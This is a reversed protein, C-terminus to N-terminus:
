EMYGLRAQETTHAELSILYHKAVTNHLAMGIKKRWEARFEAQARKSDKHVQESVLRLFTTFTRGTAGMSEFAMPVFVINHHQQLYNGYKTGPIAVPNVKVQWGHPGDWKRREAQLAQKGTVFRQQRRSMGQYTGTNGYITYGKTASAITVDIMLKCPGQQQEMQNDAGAQNGNDANVQQENTTINQNLIKFKQSVFASIDGPRLNSWPLREEITVRYLVGLLEAVMNRMCNHQAWLSGNQLCNAMHYTGAWGTKKRCRRRRHIDGRLQNPIIGFRLQIYIQYSERKMCHRGQFLYQLPMASMRGLQAQYIQPPIGTIGFLEWSIHEQNEEKDWDWERLLDLLAKDRWEGYGNHTPRRYTTDDYKQNICKRFSHMLRRRVEQNIYYQVKRGGNRKYTGITSLIEEGKYCIGDIRVDYEPDEMFRALVRANEGTTM